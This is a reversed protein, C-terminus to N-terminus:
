FLQRERLSLKQLHRLQIGLNFKPVTVQLKKNKRQTLTLLELTLATM